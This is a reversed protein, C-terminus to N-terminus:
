NPRSKALQSGLCFADNLIQLIGVPNTTMNVGDMGDQYISLKRYHRIIKNPNGLRIVSVM